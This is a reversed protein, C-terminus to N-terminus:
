TIIQMLNANYLLRQSVARRTMTKRGCLVADHLGYTENFTIKKM